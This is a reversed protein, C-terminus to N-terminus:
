KKESLLRMVGYGSVSVLTVLLIIMMNDGLLGGTKPLTEEKNYVIATIVDGDKIIEFENEKSDMIYGDPCEVERFYYKGYLLAKSEAFGNEDTVVTDIVNKESDLIEFKVGALPTNKGEVLKTIQLKGKVFNNVINKVVNEGNTEVSFPYQKNDIVIGEPAEVEQYYYTKGKEIEVNSIAKGNEDTVMTDIVNKAEDLINFKVGALPASNEDVKIITLKGNRVDNVVTKVVEKVSETLIFGHPEVDMILNEPAYTEVFTYEGLPLEKSQAKGDPGTTIEDVVNGNIDIINFKVGAIKVGNNDYKNVILHGTVTETFNVVTKELVQENEGLIFDHPETDIIYGEPVKTEKYYYKGLPLNQLGCKGSRSTTLHNVYNKNEDLIDFEVGQIPNNKEDVKTIIITGKHVENIVTKYFTRAEENVNLHYLTSDITYGEPAAIERFYYDGYELDYSAKGNEDTVIRDIAVKSSNYIEFTVDKIPRNLDDIKTVVLKGKIRENIVEVESTQGRKVTVNKTHEKIVYGEPASVEKLIYEGEPINTFKLTGNKDTVCKENDLVVTVGDAKYLAFRVGKIPLGEQDKKIIKIEGATNVKNWTIPIDGALTEPVSEVWVYDQVEGSQGYIRGFKRDIDVSCHLQFKTSDEKTSMRIYVSDGNAVTTKDNGNVDTIRASAPANVLSATMSKLYSEKYLGSVTFVYPGILADDGITTLKAGKDDVNFVPHSSYPDNIATQVLRQAVAMTKQVLAEKGSKPNVNEVFFDRGHKTSEGTRQMLEWMAWQTALYAEEETDLGMEAPSSNPYGNLMVTLAQDSMDKKYSMIGSPAPCSYDICYAINGGLKAVSYWINRGSLKDTGIYEFSKSSYQLNPATAKVSLPSFELTLIAVLVVIAALKMKLRKINKFNKM